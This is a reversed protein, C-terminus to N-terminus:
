ITQLKIYEQVKLLAGQPDGKMIIIVDAACQWAVVDLINDSLNEAVDNKIYYGYEISPDTSYSYCELVKGSLSSKIAAIPKQQGGRLTSYSQLKYKPERSDIAKNVEIVWEKLKVSHLKLYDSGLSITVVGSNNSVATPVSGSTFVISGDDLLTLSGTVDYYEDEAGSVTGRWVRYKTAGAFADWIIVLGGVTAGGDATGSVETSVDSFNVGDISASVKYYYTGSLTGATSVVTSLNIPSLLSIIEVPQLLYTPLALLMTKASNDLVKDIVDISPNLSTDTFPSLEDIRAKVLEIIASRTM